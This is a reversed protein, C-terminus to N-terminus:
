TAPHLDLVDKAAGVIGDGLLSPLETPREWAGEEALAAVEPAHRADLKRELRVLGQAGMGVAVQSREPVLDRLCNLDPPRM